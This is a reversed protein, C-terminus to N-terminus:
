ADVTVSPDMQVTIEDFVDIKDGANIAVEFGNSNKPVVIPASSDIFPLANKLSVYVQTTSM